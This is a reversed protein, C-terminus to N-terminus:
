RSRSSHDMSVGSVAAALRSDLNIWLERTTGTAGAALRHGVGDSGVRMMTSVGPGCTNEDEGQHHERQDSEVRGVAADIEPQPVDAREFDRAPELQCGNPADGYHGLAGIVGTLEGLQTERNNASSRRNACRRSQRERPNAITATAISASPM